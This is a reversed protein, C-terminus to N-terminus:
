NYLNKADKFFYIGLGKLEGVEAKRGCKGLQTDVFTPCIAMTRVKDRFFFCKIKIRDM